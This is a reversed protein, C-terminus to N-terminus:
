RMTRGCQPCVCGPLCAPDVAKGCCKAIRYQRCGGEVERTGNKLMADYLRNERQQDEDIFQESLFYGM